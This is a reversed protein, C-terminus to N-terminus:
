QPAIIGPARSRLAERATVIALARGFGSMGVEPEPSHSHPNPKRGRDPM